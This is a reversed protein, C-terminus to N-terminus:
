PFKGMHLLDSRHQSIMRSTLVSLPPEVGRSGAPQIDDDVQQDTTAGTIDQVDVWHQAENRGLLDAPDKDFSMQEMDVVKQPDDTDHILVEYEVEVTMTARLRLKENM